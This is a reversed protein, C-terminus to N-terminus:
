CFRKFGALLAKCSFLNGHFNCCWLTYLCFFIMVHFAISKIIEEDAADLEEM